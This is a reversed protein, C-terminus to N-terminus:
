PWIKDPGTRRKMQEFLEASGELLRSEMLGTAITIDRKAVAVCEKSTRVSHGIEIGLDWLVTVFAQINKELAKDGTDKRLVLIDVDSAPHLEGRGYGGVAVLAASRSGALHHRRWAATLTLDVLRAREAVLNEVPEGLRFRERLAKQAASLLERFSELETGSDNLRAELDAADQREGAASDQVSPTSM